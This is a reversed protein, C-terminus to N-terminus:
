IMWWYAYRNELLPLIVFYSMISRSHLFFLVMLKAAQSLYWFMVIYSQFQASTKEKAFNCVNIGLHNRLPLLHFLGTSTTQVESLSCWWWEKAAILKEREESTWWLFIHAPWLSRIALITFKKREKKKSTKKLIKQKFSVCSQGYPSPM